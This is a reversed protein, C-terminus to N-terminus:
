FLFPKTRVDKALVLRSLFITSSVILATAVALGVGRGADGDDGYFVYRRTGQWSTVLDIAVCAVWVAKLLLSPVDEGKLNWIIHTAIVFGFVVATVATAFAFQVPNVDPNMPLDFYLAVGYFTTFVDWLTGAILGIAVLRVGM